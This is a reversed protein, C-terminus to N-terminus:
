YSRQSVLSDVTLQFVHQTITIVFSQWCDCSSILHEHFNAPTSPPTLRKLNLLQITVQGSFWDQGRGRKLLLLLLLSLTMNLCAALSSWYGGGAKKIRQCM